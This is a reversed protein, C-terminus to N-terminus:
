SLSDNGSVPVDPNAVPPGDAQTDELKTAFGATATAGDVSKDAKLLDSAFSTSSSSAVAVGIQGYSYALTGGAQQITQAANAPVNESKYVILYNQASGSGSATLATSGVATVLVAAAVALMCFSRKM